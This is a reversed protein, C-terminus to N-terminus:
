GGSLDEGEREIAGEFMFVCEYVCVCVCVIERERERRERERESVCHPILLFQAVAVVTTRTNSIILKGIHDEFHTM